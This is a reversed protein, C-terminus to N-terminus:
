AERVPAGFFSEAEAVIGLLAAGAEAGPLGIRRRALDLKRHEPETVVRDAVARRVPLLFEELRARGIWDPELELARADFMLAKWQPESGPLEDLIRTLKRHLLTRDYRTAQQAPADSSAAPMAGDTADAPGDFFEPRALLPATGLAHKLAELFGM